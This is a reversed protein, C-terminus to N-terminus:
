SADESLAALLREEEGDSALLNLAVLLYASGGGQEKLFEIGEQGPCNVYVCNHERKHRQIDAVVDLISARIASEQPSEALMKIATILVKDEQAMSSRCRVTDVMILLEQRTQAFANDSAAVRWAEGQTTDM